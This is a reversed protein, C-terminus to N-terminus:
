FSTRFLLLTAEWTIFQREFSDAAATHSTTYYCGVMPPEPKVPWWASGSLGFEQSTMYRNQITAKRGNTSPKSSKVCFILGVEPLLPRLTKLDSSTIMRLLHSTIKQVHLEDRILRALINALYTIFRVIAKPNKHSIQGFLSPLKGLVNQLM